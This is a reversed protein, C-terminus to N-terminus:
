LPEQAADDLRVWTEFDSAGERLRIVRAGRAFGPRGYSSYGGARGYCLRVGCLRGEFDNVHDHGVFVGMVGTEVLVSFLGSNVTPCCIEEHKSGRCESRLWVDNFEPLPLHFFVLSPLRPCGPQGRRSDGLRRARERLWAIQDDAIWAYERCDADAYGGSDLFYLAAAVSDSRASAIRVVYNGAGTLRRPGRRALSLPLGQQVRLLQLRSLAGEDDHNGFVM